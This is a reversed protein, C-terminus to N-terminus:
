SENLIFKLKNNRRNNKEESLYKSLKMIKMGHYMICYEGM